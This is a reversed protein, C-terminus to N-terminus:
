VGESFFLRTTLFVGLVFFATKQITANHMACQQTGLGCRVMFTVIKKFCQLYRSYSLSMRTNATSAIHVVISQARRMCCHIFENCGHHMVTQTHMLAFQLMEFTLRKQILHISRKTSHPFKKMNPQPNFLISPGQLHPMIVTQNQKIALAGYWLM